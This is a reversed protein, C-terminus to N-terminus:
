SVVGGVLRQAFDRAIADAHQAEYRASAGSGWVPGPWAADGVSRAVVHVHLQRVINGLAGINIKDVGPRSKLVASVRAIEEMLTARDSAELDILESLDNRRPVLILWPFRADNMLLLRSLGLDGIAVTDAALRADLTFTV